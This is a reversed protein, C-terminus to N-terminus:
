VEPLRFHLVPLDVSVHRKTLPSMTVLTPYSCPRNSELCWPYRSCTPPVVNVISSSVSVFVFSVIVNHFLSLDLSPPLIYPGPYSHCIHAPFYLTAVWALPVFPSLLHCYTLVLACAPWSPFPQAVYLLLYSVIPCVLM